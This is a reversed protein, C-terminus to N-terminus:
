QWDTNEEIFAILQRSMVQQEEVSPHGGTNKFPFFCTYINSDNLQSVALEVYGPWVSGENTADMNGLACIISAKSYKSRISEIFKQYANVIYEEDPKEKGFRSVFEEYEPMNVIWSDNQFLNVVVIDPNYASFDWKSSADTPDARDYMEQMIMPFWSVTIGIGSKSICYYQANFHRATIAGYTEYNNEFYGLSRDQGSLDENAYGCTISNGYFELKRKQPAPPDLVEGGKDIEFGYFFTKGKDWETRKFLQVQHEGDSLGSALVFQQKITDTHIKSIVEGDVIVNYYNSTDLDKLTASIGTGEFHINVSTGPWSFEAAEENYIIRGQYTLKSNDFNISTEPAACSLTLLLILTYIVKKM